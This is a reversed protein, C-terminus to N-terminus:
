YAIGMAQGFARPDNLVGLMLHAVDARSVIVGRRLNQGYATRYHGTMPGDTLRPPRVSTWDLGSQGLVDEMLALDVYVDRLVIKIFPTLVNRMFFGEGPDRRPPSPRGPSAVTSVPAASVVVIRRVGTKKMAEVIARTGTSTVGSDSARRRGLGSIVADAGAVASALAAPDPAALDVAVTRV